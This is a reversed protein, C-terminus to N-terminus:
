TLLPRGQGPGPWTCVIIQNNPRRDDCRGEKGKYLDYNVWTICLLWKGVHFCTRWWSYNNQYATFSFMVPWARLGPGNCINPSSSLNHYSTSYTKENKDCTKIDINEQLLYKEMFWSISVWWLWCFSSRRPLAVGEVWRGRLGPDSTIFDVTEILTESIIIEDCWLWRLLTSHQYYHGCNITWM